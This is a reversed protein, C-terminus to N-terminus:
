GFDPWCLPLFAVDSVLVEGEPVALLFRVRHRVSLLHGVALFDRLLVADCIPVNVLM